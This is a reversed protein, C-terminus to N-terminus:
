LQHRRNGLVVLCATRLISRVVSCPRPVSYEVILSTDENQAFREVTKSFATIGVCSEVRPAESDPAHYTISMIVQSADPGSFATRYCRM